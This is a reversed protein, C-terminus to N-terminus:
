AAKGDSSPLADLWAKLDGASILTRRGYKRASIRGAKMEGYLARVSIGLQQAAAKPAYALPAKTTAMSM